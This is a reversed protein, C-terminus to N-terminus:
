PQPFGFPFLIEMGLTHGFLAIVAMVMLTLFICVKKMSITM